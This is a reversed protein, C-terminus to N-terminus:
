QLPVRVRLGKISGSAGNKKSGEVMAWVQLWFSSLWMLERDVLNVLFCISILCILALIIVRLEV